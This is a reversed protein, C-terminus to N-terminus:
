WGRREPAPNQPQQQCQNENQQGPSSEAPEVDAGSRGNLTNNGANGYLENDLANGIANINEDGDLYLVEVHNALAYTIKSVVVDM